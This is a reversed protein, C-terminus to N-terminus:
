LLRPEEPEICQPDENSARNVMARVPYADLRVSCPDLVLREAEAPEGLWGEYQAPSLILPMRHHYARVDSNAETTIIAFTEVPEDAGAISSWDWIGAFCFLEQDLLVFRFPTKGPKRWEYFGDAPVLCRQGQFSRRFTPKKVLTECKANIIPHTSWTPQLGWRMPKEVLQAHDLLIVPVTQTPAINYREKFLMTSEGPAFRSVLRMETKSLSYRGCM